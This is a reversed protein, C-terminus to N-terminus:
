CSERGEAAACEPVLVRAKSVRAKIKLGFLPRLIVLRRILFEYLIGTVLGM